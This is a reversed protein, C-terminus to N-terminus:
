SPLELLPVKLIEFNRIVYNGAILAKRTSSCELQSRGSMAKKMMELLVPRDKYQELKGERQQLTNEYKELDIGVAENFTALVNEYSVLEDNYIQQRYHNKIAALQQSQVDKLQALNQALYNNYEQVNKM